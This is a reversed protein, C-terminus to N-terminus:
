LILSYIQVSAIVLLLNVLSMVWSLMLALRKDYAFIDYIFRLALASIVGLVVPVFLIVVKDAQEWRAEASNYYFPIRPPLRGFLVLGSVLLFIAVCITSVVAAASAFNRWFPILELEAERRTARHKLSSLWGGLGVHQPQLNFSLQSPDPRVIEAEEQEQQRPLDEPAPNHLPLSDFSQDFQM